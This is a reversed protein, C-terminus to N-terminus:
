SVVFLVSGEEECKGGNERLFCFVSFSCLNFFFCTFCCVCGVCWLWLTTCKWWWWWWWRRGGEGRVGIKKGVGGGGGCSSGGGVRGGVAVLCLGWERVEVMVKVMGRGVKGLGLAGMKWWVWKGFRGRKGWMGMVVAVM